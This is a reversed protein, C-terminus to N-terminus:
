TYDDVKYNLLELIPDSIKMIAAAPNKAVDISYNNVKRMEGKM